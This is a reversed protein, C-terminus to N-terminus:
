TSASRVIGPTSCSGYECSEESVSMSWARSLSASQNSAWKTEMSGSPHWPIWKCSSAAAQSRDHFVEGDMKFFDFNTVSVLPRPAASSRHHGSRIEIPPAHAHRAALCTMSRDGVGMIFGGVRHGRAAAPDGSCPDGGSARCAVLYATGGPSLAVMGISCLVDWPDDQHSGRAGGAVVFWKGGRRRNCTASVRHPATLIIRGWGRSSIM